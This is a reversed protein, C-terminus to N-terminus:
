DDRAEVIRLVSDRSILSDCIGDDNLDCSLGSRSHCQSELARVQADIRDREHCRGDNQWDLHAMRVEETLRRVEAEAAHLAKCVQEYAWATPYPQRDHAIADDREKRLRDMEAFMDKGDYSTLPGGREVHARLADFDTTM